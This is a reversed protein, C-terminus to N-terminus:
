QGAVPQGSRRVRLPALNRRNEFRVRGGSTDFVETQEIEHSLTAADLPRARQAVDGFIEVLARTGVGLTWPGTAALNAVVSLDGFKDESTLQLSASGSMIPGRYLRRIASTASAAGAEDVCSVVVDARRKLPWKDMAVLQDVDLEAYLEGGARVFWRTFASCQAFADVSHLDFVVVASEYGRRTAENAIAEGQPNNPAMVSYGGHRDDGFQPATECPSMVLVDEEAAMRAAALAIERDCGVLLLLPDQDLLRGLEELTDSLDPGPEAEVVGLSRAIAVGDSRLETVSRRAAGAIGTSRPALVAIVSSGEVVAALPPAASLPSPPTAGACASAVILLAVAVATTRRRM